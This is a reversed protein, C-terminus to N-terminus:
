QVNQVRNFSYKKLSYEPNQKSNFKSNFWKKAPNLSFIFKWLADGLALFAVSCQSFCLSACCPFKSPHRQHLDCTTHNSSCIVRLPCVNMMSPHCFLCATQIPLSIIVRSNRISAFDRIISTGPFSMVTLPNWTQDRQAVLSVRFIRPTSTKSVNRM